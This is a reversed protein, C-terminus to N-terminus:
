AKITKVGPLSMIIGASVLALIVFGTFFAGATLDLIFGFATPGVTIGLNSAVTLVGLGMGMHQPKLVEPLSAFVFVPIPAFGLGLTAAWLPMAFPLKFLLVFSVAMILSGALLLQKKWGTKDIIIGVVPGAFIPVLMVLSTLFGARAISMGAQQFFQPGFTIYALLQANALTWILGLLLLSSSFRFPQPPGM